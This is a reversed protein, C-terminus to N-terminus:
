MYVVNTAHVKAVWDNVCVLPLELCFGTLQVITIIQPSLRKCSRLSGTQPLWHYIITPWQFDWRFMFPKLLSMLKVSSTAALLGTIFENPRMSKLQTWVTKGLLWNYKWEWFRERSFMLTFCMKDKRQKVTISFNNRMQKTSSSFNTRM